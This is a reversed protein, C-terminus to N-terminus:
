PRDVHRQGRLPQARCRHTRPLMMSSLMSDLGLQGGGPTRLRAVAPPQSPGPRDDDALRHCRCLNRLGEGVEYTQKLLESMTAAVTTFRTACSGSVTAPRPRCSTAPWRRSPRSRISRATARWNTGLEAFAERDGSSGGAPDLDAPAAARLGMKRGDRDSVHPPARFVHGRLGAASSPRNVARRRPAGDTIGAAVGVGELVGDITGRSPRSSPRRWSSCPWGARASAVPTAEEGRPLWEPAVSVLLGIAQDVYAQGHLRAPSRVAELRTKTAVPGCQHSRRPGVSSTPSSEVKGLFTERRASSSQRRRHGGM